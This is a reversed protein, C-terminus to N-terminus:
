CIKVQGCPDDASGAEVQLTVHNIKFKEKLADNIHRHDLDTLAGEPIVLHATLAVERTSLSWIHLDHVAVVGPLANLFERVQKQDVGHPVADLIMNASDRLLEWTGIREM